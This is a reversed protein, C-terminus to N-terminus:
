DWYGYSEYGDLVKAKQVCTFFQEVIVKRIKYRAKIDDSFASGLLYYHKDDEDYVEFTDLKTFLIDPKYQRNSKLIDGVNFM